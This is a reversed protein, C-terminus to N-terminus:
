LGPLDAPDRLLASFADDKQPVLNAPPEGGDVLHETVAIWKLNKVSAAVLEAHEPQTIAAVAGCNDAYYALEEGSSRTNTTVVVAGLRACAFWSLEIEPSNDLHVLVSDGPGIGRAHMGAAIPLVDRHFEGYTWVRRPGTFPEWVLFPHDHRTAARYDLLWNVDRGAFPNVIANRDPASISPM